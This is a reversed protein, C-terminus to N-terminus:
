ENGTVPLGTEFYYKMGDALTDLQDQIRNTMLPELVWRGLLGFRPRVTLTIALDTQQGKEDDPEIHYRTEMDHFPLFFSPKMLKLVFGQGSDWEIVEEDVMQKKDLYVKRQVGKGKKQSTTVESDFVYDVYNQLQSLDSMKEWLLAVPQNIFVRAQLRIRPNNPPLLILLLLAFLLLALLKKM